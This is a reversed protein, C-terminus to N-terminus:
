GQSNGGSKTKLWGRSMPNDALNIFAGIVFHDHREIVCSNRVSFHSKTLRHSFSNLRPLWVVCLLFSAVQDELM